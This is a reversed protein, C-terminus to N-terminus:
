RRAARAPPANGCGSATAARLDEIVAVLRAVGAEPAGENAIEVVPSACALPAERALRAAIEADNERGRRALRAARIAPAATVHAVLVPVGLAEAPGIARRSVNVVAIRGAAVEGHVSAPVGYGLGHARWALCFRGAEAAARYDAESMALHAEGGAQASRTVVRPPFVVDAAGVLRARAGDILTDKGAGSPGVVLVLVGPMRQPM